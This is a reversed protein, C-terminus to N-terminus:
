IGRPPIFALGPRHNPGAARASRAPSRLRAPAVLTIVLLGGVPFLTFLHQQEATPAPMCGQAFLTRSPGAGTVGAVLRIAIGHMSDRLSHLVAVGLYTGIM